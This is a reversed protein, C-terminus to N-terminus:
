TGPTKTGKGVPLTLTGLAMLLAFASMVWFGATYSNTADRATGALFPGLVTGLQGFAGLIGFGLGLRNPAILFPPFSFIATPSLAAFLALVFLLPVTWATVGPFLFLAVALGVAGIRIVLRRALGRDLLFGVSPTVVLFGWMIISSLLGAQGLPLGQFRFYDPAFTLFSILSANVCMWTAGLFWISYGTRFSVGTAQVPQPETAPAPRYVLLFLLWGLAVVMATVVIPGRWGTREALGGLLPLGTIAAAPLGMNLVSLSFGLERGAFWRAAFKPAFIWVSIAGVGTLLRGVLLFIFGPAFAVLLIGLITLIYAVMAVKKPDYRDAILGIPIALFVGSIAFASMILGAQAHSLGFDQIILSLVPSVSQLTLGYIYCAFFAIPLIAWRYPVSQRPLQLTRDSM